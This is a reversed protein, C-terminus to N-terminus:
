GGMYKGNVPRIEDDEDAAHKGPEDELDGEDAPLVPAPPTPEVANPVAYVAIVGLVALTIQIIRQVDDDFQALPTIAALLASVFAAIAKAYGALGAPILQKTSVIPTTM